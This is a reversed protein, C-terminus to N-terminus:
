KGKITNIIGYVTLFGLSGVLYTIFPISFYYLVENFEGLWLFLTMLAFSLLLKFLSPALSNLGLYSILNKM